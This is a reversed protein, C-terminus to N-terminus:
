HPRLSFCKSSASEVRRQGAWAYNMQVFWIRRRSVSELVRDDSNLKTTTACCIFLIGVSNAVFRSMVGQTNKTANNNGHVKEMEGPLIDARREKLRLSHGHYQRFICVIVDLM